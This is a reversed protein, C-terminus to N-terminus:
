EDGAAIRGELETYRTRLDAGGMDPYLLKTVGVIKGAEEPQGLEFSCAALEYRAELWGREGQEELGVLRKWYEYSQQLEEPNGTSAYLEACKRVLRRNRPERELMSEYVILADHPRRRAEYAEARTEDLLWQSRVDLQDRQRMLRDAAQIQLDALERRVREDTNQSIDALGSLIALLEEPGTQNLKDLLQQSEEARQQGAFTVIQLRTAALSMEEWAPDVDQRNQGAERVAVDYSQQVRMLLADADVYRASRHSLLIRALRVAVESQLRDLRAPPVPFYDIFSVLQAVARDEWESTPQETERLHQLQQEYLAGIRARAQDARTHEPPLEGYVAIASEWENGSDLIAALMWTAESSSSRAAFRDRHDELAAVYAARREPSAQREWQKGLCYAYLLHADGAEDVDDAGDAVTLFGDASDIYRGAQLLISARTLEFERGLEGRGSERAQAIAIGYKATAQDVDGNQYASRAARIVDALDRGYRSTDAATELLMRSRARWPLGVTADMREAKELLEDALDAEGRTAAIESAQLLAEVNLAALENTLAGNADGFDVLHQLALDPRHQGLEVRVREATIDDEFGPASARELSDLM